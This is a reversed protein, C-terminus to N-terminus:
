PAGLQFEHPFRNSSVRQCLRPRLARSGNEFCGLGHLKGFDSIRFLPNSSLREIFLLVRVAYRSCHVLDSALRCGNPIQRLCIAVAYLGPTVSLKLINSIATFRLIDNVRPNSFFLRFVLILIDLAPAVSHTFASQAACLPIETLYLVIIFVSALLYM